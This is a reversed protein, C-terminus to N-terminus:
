PSASAGSHYDLWRKVRPFHDKPADPHTLIDVHGYDHLHGTDRGLVEVVARSAGIENAFDKVDAPHGLYRDASGALSLIPPWTVQRAAAAYDFGDTADVWAGGIWHSIDRRLNRPEDDAGLRLARAPFYGVLHGTSWGLAKWIGEIGILRWPNFVKITRKTGFFVMSRILDRYAPCRAFHSALYVGGWSHALWHQPIRGRLRCIEDVFAPIEEVIVERQGTTLERSVRPKSGGRGRLDGVYVDYGARALEYALGKGSRSYFIRGSELSGHLCLLPTGSPEASIRKLHLHSDDGLRIFHSETHLHEGM